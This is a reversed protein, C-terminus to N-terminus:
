KLESRTKVHKRCIPCVFAKGPQEDSITVDRIANWDDQHTDQPQLGDGIGPFLQFDSVHGAFSRGEQDRDPVDASFVSADGDSRRTGYGSDSAPVGYQYTGADSPIRQRYSNGNGFRARHDPVTNPQKQEPV